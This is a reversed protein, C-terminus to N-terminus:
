DVTRFPKSAALLQREDRLEELLAKKSPALQLLEPASRASSHPAEPLWLRSAALAAVYNKRKKESDVDDLTKHNIWTSDRTTGSIARTCQSMMFTRAGRPTPTIMEYVTASAVAM